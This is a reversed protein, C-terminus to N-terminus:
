ADALMRMARLWVIPVVDANREVVAHLRALDGLHDSMKREVRPPFVRHRRRGCGLLHKRLAADLRVIQRGNGRLQKGQVFRGFRSPGRADLLLESQRATARQSPSTIM